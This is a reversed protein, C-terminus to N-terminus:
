CLGVERARAVAQTRSRVGLKGYINSTHKKVTNMTVILREAIQRNSCGQCILQLVERERGTLPEILAPAGLRPPPPASEAEGPGFAALLKSVYAPYTGRAAAQRLLRAVAPGGELFLRVYGGPEALALCREFPALAAVPEGQAQLALAKLLSLEIVRATRGGAGAPACLRDCVALVDEPKNQALYVRALSVQQLEYLLTPLDEVRVGSPM